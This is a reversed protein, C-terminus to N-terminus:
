RQWLMAYEKEGTQEDVQGNQMRFGNRLYFAMARPNREYVHLTLTGYIGKVHELLSMGVGMSRCAADVFLGAIYGEMVGVFGIIRGQDECVWLKAQPLMQKVGSYHGRWYDPAVFAHAQMNGQLWLEMVADTDGAKFDRIERM